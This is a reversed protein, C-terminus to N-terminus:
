RYMGKIRGWSTGETSTAGSDIILWTLLNVDRKNVQPWPECQSSNAGYNFSHPTPFPDCQENYPGDTAFQNVNGPGNDKQQKVILYSTAAPITVNLESCNWRLYPVIVTSALLADPCGDGENDKHLSITATWDGYSPFANRFYTIVRKVRNGPTVCPQDLGGFLVGASEGRGTQFIWVYNSCLNYWRYNACTGDLNPLRLCGTAIGSQLDDSERVRIPAELAVSHTAILLTALALVASLRPSSASYRRRM